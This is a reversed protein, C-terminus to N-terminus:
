AAGKEKIFMFQGFSFMLLLIMPLVEETQQFIQLACIVWALSSIFTVPLSKMLYALISLGISVICAIVLGETIM